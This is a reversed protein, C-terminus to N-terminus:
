AIKSIFGNVLLIRELEYKEWVADEGKECKQGGFSFLIM